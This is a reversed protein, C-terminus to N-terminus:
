FNCVILSFCSMIREAIVVPPNEDIEDYISCLEDDDKLCIRCVNWEKDM